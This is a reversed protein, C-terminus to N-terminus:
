GYGLNFPDEEEFFGAEIPVPSPVSEFLEQEEAPEPTSYIYTRYMDRESERDYLGKSNWTRDYQMCAHRCAQMCTHMCLYKRLM